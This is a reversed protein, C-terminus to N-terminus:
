PTVIRGACSLTGAIDYMNSISGAATRGKLEFYNVCTGCVLMVVGKAELSKLDDIVDSDVATLKVGTNYFVMIEPPAELDPITHIFAKMLIRGLDEDGRGMVDSAIVFVTPGAAATATQQAAPRVAPMASNASGGPTTITLRWTGDEQKAVDITRNTNAALRKINEVATDNDVIVTVETHSELARKTLIVPQPCSIGRADILEAM